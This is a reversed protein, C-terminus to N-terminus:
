GATRPPREQATKAAEGSAAHPITFWFRTEGPRSDFGIRGGHREVIARALALGLGTGGPDASGGARAFRQFIRPQHSEPIGPGRDVVEFRCGDPEDGCAVLVESGPPAYKVANSVLNILVRETRAPDALIPQATVCEERIVVGREEARARTADLAGAVIAAPDCPEPRHEDAGAEIRDLDLTEDILRGLRESNRRALEVLREAGAPLGGSSGLLGLAARIATLPTRLEHSVESVFETKRRSADEARDRARELEGRAASLEFSMRDFSSALRDFEATPLHGVPHEFHGDRLRDAAATLIRLPRSVARLAAAAVTVGVLTALLLGAVAWSVAERATRRARSATEARRAEVRPQVTRDLLTDVAAELGSFRRVGSELQSEVFLAEDVLRRHRGYAATLQREWVREQATLPASRYRALFREFDVRDNAIERVVASDHVALYDWLGAALEVLNIELEETAQYVGARSPLGAEASRQIHDDLLSDMEALGQRIQRLLVRQRVDLGILADAQEAFARIPQGLSDASGGAVGTRRLMTHFELMEQRADAARKRAAPDGTALYTRAASAMEEANIEIEFAATRANAIRGTLERTDGGLARTRQASFLASLAFVTVLTGIGASLIFVVSRRRPASGPAVPREPPELM